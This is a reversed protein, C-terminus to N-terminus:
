GEIIQQWGKDLGSHVICESKCAHMAGQCNQAVGRKGKAIKGGGGKGQACDRAIVPRQHM